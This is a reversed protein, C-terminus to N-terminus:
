GREPREPPEFKVIQGKEITLYYLERQAEGDQDFRIKGTVGNYDKTESLAKQLAPRGGPNKNLADRLLGAADYAQADPLSPERREKELFAKVFKQVRPEPDQAFFGDVFVAGEVFKTGREATQPSNWTNTGLLRVPTIKDRGTTKEIRKLEAV